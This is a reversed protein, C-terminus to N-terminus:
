VTAQGLTVSRHFTLHDNTPARPPPLSQPRPLAQPLPHSRPQDQRRPTSPRHLRNDTPALPPPHRPDPAPRPQTAPRRKPRAPLPDDPRILRSDTRAPSVRSPPKAASAAPTHGPSCCSPPRSRASAPNTSCSRRSRAPSSRSRATSTVSKPQSSNSGAPSAQTRAAHRAAGPRRSARDPQQSVHSCGPAPRAAATRQAAARARHHDLRPAPLAPANANVAGERAALLARLAEREGGARPTAPREERPRRSRGSDRRACRDKRGLPTGAAVPRGRVGARGTRNPVPHPRRRLLRYRSRSRVGAPAHGRRARAGGTVARTPPSAGRLRCRRRTGRRGRARARRSAPRRRGTIWSIQSCGYDVELRPQPVCGTGTQPHFRARCFQSPDCGSPTSLSRILGALPRGAPVTGQGSLDSSLCGCASDNAFRTVLLSCRCWGSLQGLRSAWVSM